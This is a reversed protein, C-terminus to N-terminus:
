DTAYVYRFEEYSETGHLNPICADDLLVVSGRKTKEVSSECDVADYQFAVSTLFQEFLAIQSYDERHGGEGYSDNWELVSLNLEESLIRIMASKGTEPSGVLVLLKARSRVGNRGFARDENSNDYFAELWSKVEKVKKPAICLSKSTKPKYKEVWMENRGQNRTSRLRSQRFRSSMSSFGKFTNNKKPSDQCISDLMSKADNGLFKFNYETKGNDAEDGAPWSLRAPPLRRRKRTPLKKIEM